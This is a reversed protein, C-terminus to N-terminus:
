QVVARVRGDIWTFVYDSESGLGKAQEERLQAILAEHVRHLLPVERVSARSKTRVRRPEEGRRLPALQREVRIVRDVFDIDAWTM